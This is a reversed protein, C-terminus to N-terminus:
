SKEDSKLMARGFVFGAWLTGLPKLAELMQTLGFSSKEEIHGIGLVLTISAYIVVIFYGFGYLLFTKLRENDQPFLNM